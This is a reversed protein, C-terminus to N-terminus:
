INSREALNLHEGSFTISVNSGTVVVNDVDINFTGDECILSLHDGVQIDALTRWSGDALQIEHYLPGVIQNNGVDMTYPKPPTSRFMHRIDDAHSPINQLNM